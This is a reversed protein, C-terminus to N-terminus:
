PLLGDLFFDRAVTGKYKVFVNILILYALSCYYQTDKILRDATTYTTRLIRWIERTCDATVDAEASLLATFMPQM